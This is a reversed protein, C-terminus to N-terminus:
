VGSLLLGDSLYAGPGPIEASSVVAATRGASRAGGTRTYRITYIVVILAIVCLIALITALFSKVWDSGAYPIEPEKVRKAKKGAKKKQKKEKKAMNGANVGTQDFVFPM